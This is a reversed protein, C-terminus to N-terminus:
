TLSFGTASLATPDAHVFVTGEFAGATTAFGITVASQGMVPLSVFASPRVRFLPPGNATSGAYITATTAQSTNSVTISRIPAGVDRAFITLPTSMAGASITTTFGAANM